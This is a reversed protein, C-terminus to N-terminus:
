SVACSRVDDKITIARDIRLLTMLEKPQGNLGSLVLSREEERLRKFLFVIAGIGSSDIFTVKSLDFVIDGDFTTPILEIADKNEAIAVCDMEGALELVEYENLTYHNQYM